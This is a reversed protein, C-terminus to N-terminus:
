RNLRLVDALPRRPTPPPLHDLVAGCSIHAVRMSRDARLLRTPDLTPELRSGEAAWRWPQSNYLLPARGALEIANEITPTDLVTDLM